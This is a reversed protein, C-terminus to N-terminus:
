RLPDRVRSRGAQLMTGSCAGSRCQQLMFLCVLSVEQLFSVPIDETAPGTSTFTDLTDIPFPWQDLEECTLTLNHNNSQFSLGIHHVPIRRYRRALYAMGRNRILESSCSNNEECFHKWPDPFLEIFDEISFEEKYKRLLTAMEQRKLFAERTPYNKSEVSELLFVKISEEDNGIKDFTARLYEPDADPLVALLTEFKVSGVEDLQQTVFIRVADEDDGMMQVNERLFAPDADPFMAMLNHYRDDGENKKLQEAVFERMAEEDNGIEVCKKRLYTSDAQPFMALLTHYQSDAKNRSQEEIFDKLAAEDSGIANCKGRLFTPDAHPFLSLLLHYQSNNSVEQMQEAIFEKVANYDNGIKDWTKILFVPDAHPLSSVFEEYTVEKKRCGRCPPKPVVVNASSASEMLTDGVDSQQEKEICELVRNVMDTLSCFQLSIGTLFDVSADPFLERLKSVIRDGAQEEDANDQFILLDDTDTSEFSASDQELSANSCNEAEALSTPGSDEEEKTVSNPEDCNSRNELRETARVDSERLIIGLDTVVDGTEEHPDCSALDTRNVLTFDQSGSALSSTETLNKSGMIEPVSCSPHSGDIECDTNYVSGSDIYYVRSEHNSNASIIDLNECSNYSLTDEEEQDSVIRDFVEDGNESAALEVIHKSSSSPLLESSEEQIKQEASSSLMVEVCNDPSIPTVEVGGTSDEQEASLPMVEFDDQNIKQEALMVGDNEKNVKEETSLRTGEVSEESVKQGFSSLTGESEESVEGEEHQTEIRLKGAVIKPVNGIDVDVSRDTGQGREKDRHESGSTNGGERDVDASINQPPSPSGSVSHQISHPKEDHSATQNHCMEINDISPAILPSISPAYVSPPNTCDSVVHSTDVSDAPTVETCPLRAVGSEADIQLFIDTVVNTRIDCERNAELCAYVQEFDHHPLIGCILKAENALTEADPDFERCLDSHIEVDTHETLSQSSLLTGPFIHDPAPVSMFNQCFDHAPETIYNECSDVAIGNGYLLSNESRMGGSRSVESVAVRELPWHPNEILDDESRQASFRFVRDEPTVDQEVIVGLKHLLQTTVYEIRLERRIYTLEELKEYIENVDIKQGINNCQLIMQVEAVDAMLEDVNVESMAPMNLEAMDNFNIDTMDEMNM